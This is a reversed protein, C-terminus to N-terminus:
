LINLNYIDSYKILFWSENLLWNYYPKDNLLKEFPQDKYTGFAVFIPELGLISRAQNLSLEGDYVLEQLRNTIDEEREELARIYSERVSEKSSSAHGYGFEEITKEIDISQPCNDPYFIEWDTAKINREDFIDTEVMGDDSFMKLNGCHIKLRANLVPFTERSKWIERRIEKASGNLLAKLAKNFKM